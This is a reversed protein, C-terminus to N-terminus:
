KDKDSYTDPDAGLLQGLREKIDERSMKELNANININQSRNISLGALQNLEKIASVAANFQGNEYAKEMVKWLMTGTKQPTIAYKEALEDQKIRIAKVVNPFDKGNLLKNSAQSPFEYGAKRAAETMGCAGETYHWVFSSQMETLGHEGDKEFQVPADVIKEKPKRPRGKTAM